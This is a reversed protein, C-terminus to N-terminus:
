GTRYTTRPNAKGDLTERVDHYHTCSRLRHLDPVVDYSLFREVGTEKNDTLSTCPNYLVFYLIAVLCNILYRRADRQGAPIGRRQIAAGRLVRKQSTPELEIKIMPCALKISGPRSLYASLRLCRSDIEGHQHQAKATECRTHFRRSPRLHSAHCSAQWQAEGYGLYIDDQRHDIIM